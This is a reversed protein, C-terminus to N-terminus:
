MESLDKRFFDSYENQTSISKSKLIAQDIEKIMQTNDQDKLITKIM